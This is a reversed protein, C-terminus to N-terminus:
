RGTLFRGAARLLRWAHFLPLPMASAKAGWRAELIRREPFLVRRGLGRIQRLKSMPLLKHRAFAQWGPSLGREARSQFLRSPRAAARRAAEVMALSDAVPATGGVDYRRAAEALDAGLACLVELDAVQRPALRPEDLHHRLAHRCCIGVQDALDPVRLATGHWGAPVARAFIPELDCPPDGPLGPLDQHLEVLVDDLVFASPSTEATSHLAEGLLLRGEADRAEFSLQAGLSRMVKAAQEQQSPRILVDLDSMHRLPLYDPALLVLASGKLPLADIGAARLASSLRALTSLYLAGQMANAEAAEQLRERLAPPLRAELGAATVANWLIPVVAAPHAAAAMREWDLPAEGLARLRALDLDRVFLSSLLFATERV